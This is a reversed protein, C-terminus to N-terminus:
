LLLALRTLIQLGVLVILFAMDFQVAGLRLPPIFRRLLRLPPDTLTFVGEALVLLPGRPRFDRAFGQILDLILRVVFLLWYLWLITALVQGVSSM